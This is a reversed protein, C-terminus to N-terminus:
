CEIEINEFFSEEINLFFNTYSTIRDMLKGAIVGVKSVTNQAQLGVNSSM